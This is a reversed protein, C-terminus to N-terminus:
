FTIPNRTLPTWPTEGVGKGIKLKYGNGILLDYGSGIDLYNIDSTDPAPWQNSGTSKTVTTYQIAVDAPQITLNFGGGIDLFYGGGIQLEYAQGTTVEPPPAEWSLPVRTTNTFNAM